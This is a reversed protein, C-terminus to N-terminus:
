LNTSVCGALSRLTEDLSEVERTIEAVINADRAQVETSARDTYGPSSLQAAWKDLDKLLKRQRKGLRKRESELKKLGADTHGVIAELQLRVMCQM